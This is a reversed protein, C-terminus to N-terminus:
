INQLLAVPFQGLVGGFELNRKGEGSISATVQEGTLVNRWNEPAGDPLPLATDGWIDKGPFCEGESILQTTWRPAATICWIEDL